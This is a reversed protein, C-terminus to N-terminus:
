SEYKGPPITAGYKQKAAQIREQTIQWSQYVREPTRPCNKQFFEISRRLKSLWADCRFSFQYQYDNPSYNESLLSKFLPKLDDYKPILGTPTRWADVENHVRAEAWHLWVKKAMKSTCFNNDPARLFYNVAFIQPIKRIGKVFNINNMVYKAVSYSIFDLNAMPQPARVGEKGIIAFTTESELTCAKTIIGDEWDFSEEIPVSTDSDRGGYIIGGVEVGMKEDWAPDLNELYELRITYRSNPHALPILKGESDKVGEHWNPGSHNAGTKPTEVEMGLWYPNNDPGTLVNSYIMEHPEMLTRFIVPDDKANVDKIIGFIGREVNAARFAGNINRFYAIDDGIITEGPLMATATKGCASPYAGCFYTVREKERNQCGMVFMHECLWNESGSKRIALRMAHKKLGVSNGAYQNNMSYVSLTELDQYIRRKDLDISCGREDLRGASHCFCFFNDKEQPLLNAFHEYGRRYLLDESHAVYFSDTIQACGISFPSMTPCECSLKIIAEKGRMIEKAISKIESLGEEYEICPLGGMEAIHEKTVMFKTAGPARGQDGYGDYHITQGNKALPAEERKEIAKRRILEADEDSDDCMFVSAPDCVEVWEGVFNILKKNRLVTLKDFSRKDMKQKLLNQFRSQELEINKNTAQLAM